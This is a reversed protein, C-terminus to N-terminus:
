LFTFLVWIIHKSKFVWELLHIYEYLKNHMDRNELRASDPLIIRAPRTSHTFPISLEAPSLGLQQCPCRAARGVHLSGFSHLEVGGYKGWSREGNVTAEKSPAFYPLNCAPPLCVFSTLTFLWRQRSAHDYKNKNSGIHSLLFFKLQINLHCMIWRWAAVFIFVRELFMNVFIFGSWIKM